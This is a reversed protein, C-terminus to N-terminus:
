HRVQRRACRRMAKVVLNRRRWKRGSNQDFAEPSGSIELESPQPASTFTVSALDDHNQDLPLGIGLATPDWLGALTGVSPSAEYRESTDDGAPTAALLRNRASISIASRPERFRGNPARHAM